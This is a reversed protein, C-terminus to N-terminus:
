SWEGCPASETPTEMYDDSGKRKREMRRREREEQKQYKDAPSRAEGVLRTTSRKLKKKSEQHQLQGHPGRPGCRDPNPDESHDAVRLYLCLSVCDPCRTRFFLYM